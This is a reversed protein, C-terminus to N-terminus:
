QTLELLYIDNGLFYVAKDEEPSFAFQLSYMNPGYIMETEKGTPIDVLYYYDKFNDCYNSSSAGRNACWQLYTIVKKGSPSITGNNVPAGASQWEGLRTQTSGNFVELKGSYNQFYFLIGDATWKIPGVYGSPDQISLKEIAKTQISYSYFVRVYTGPEFTSFLLHQGDPSFAIPSGSAILNEKHTELDYLYLYPQYEPDFKEWKNFALYNHSYPHANYDSIVSDALSLKQTGDNINVSSLGANYNLYYLTNGVLWSHGYGDYLFNAVNLQKSTKTDIDIVTITTGLSVITNTLESWLIKYTPNYPSTYILTGLNSSFDPKGFDDEIECSFSLLLCGLWFTSSIRNWGTRFFGRRITSGDPRKILYRNEAITQQPVNESATTKYRIIPLLSLADIM